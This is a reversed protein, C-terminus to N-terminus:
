AYTASKWTGRRQDLGERDGSLMDGSAVPMGYPLVGGIHKSYRDPYIRELNDFTVAFTNAAASVAFFSSGPSRRGTRPARRSSGAREAHVPVDPGNLIAQPPSSDVPLLESRTPALRQPALRRVRAQGLRERRERLGPVVRRQGDRFPELAGHGSSSARFTTNSVLRRGKTGEVFQGATLQGRRGDV